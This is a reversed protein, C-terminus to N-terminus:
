LTAHVCPSCKLPAQTRQTNQAAIALSVSFPHPSVAMAVVMQEGAHSGM